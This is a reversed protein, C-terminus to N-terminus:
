SKRGLLLILSGAMILGGGALASPTPVEAFFVYGLAVAFLFNTYEVTGIKAAPARTFATAYALQGASGLLGILLLAQWESGVLIAPAGIALSVPAMYTIALVSQLAVIGVVPDAGSRARLLVMALAYTFTAGLAAAVGVAEARFGAAGLGKGVAIVIVGAFCVAIALLTAASVKEGLIIRGLLAMFVPALYTFVVAEILALRSLSFYFLFSTVVVIATRVVHARLMVPGPRPVRMVVALPLIFLAGALYRALVLDVTPYRTSLGKLVADMATLLAAGLLAILIPTATTDHRLPPASM